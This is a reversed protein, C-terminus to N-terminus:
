KLGLGARRFVRVALLLDTIESLKCEAHLQTVVRQEKVGAEVGRFEGTTAEIHELEQWLGPERKLAEVAAQVEAKTWVRKAAKMEIEALIKITKTVSDQYRSVGYGWLAADLASFGGQALRESDRGAVLSCLGIKVGQLAQTAAPV